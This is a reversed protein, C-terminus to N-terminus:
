LEEETGPTGVVPEPSVYKRAFLYDIATVFDSGSGGRASAAMVNTSAQPPATTIAGKQVGDIEFVQDTGDIFLDMLYWATGIAENTQNGVGGPFKFIKWYDDGVGKYHGALYGSTAWASDWLVVLNWGNQALTDVTMRARIAIPYTLSDGKLLYITNDNAKDLEAWGHAGYRGGTFYWNGSPSETVDSIDFFDSFFRFTNAGNGLPWYTAFGARKNGLGDHGFFYMRWRQGVQVLVPMENWYDDWEGDDGLGLIPNGGVAKTWGSDKSASSAMGIRTQDPAVEFGYFWMYYLSGFKKVFPYSAGKLYTSADGALLPNNGSKSWSTLDSSTALGIKWTTFDAYTQWGSYYLYYTSGEKVIAQGPRVGGADWTAATREMVPNSGSKTWNVGDSSTALGIDTAGDAQEGGYLMYWNDGEKWVCAAMVAADDWSGGAGPSLVPNSPHRTWNIGDASTALGIQFTAGGAEGSYYGYYTSGVLFISDFSTWADDWQGGAGMELVPNSGYRVWEGEPISVPNTSKTSNGYYVYITVASDLDETVEVWFVDEQREYWHDLVTEGDSARFEVDDPFASAKSNLYCVGAADVGVGEFVQIPVQYNTGAGAQGAVIIPKRYSYDETPTPTPPTPTARERFGIQMDRVLPGLGDPPIIDGSNASDDPSIFEPVIGDVYPPLLGPGPRWTRGM